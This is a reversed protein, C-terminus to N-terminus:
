TLVLSFEDNGAVPNPYFPLTLLMVGDSDDYGPAGFNTSPANFTVINGATTGHVFSAVGLDQNSVATFYDKTAISPAEISIEGEPKRDTLVVQKDCGALQRYVVEGNNSLTFSQLCGSYGHVNVSQTNDSNIALPRAQDGYVPGPSAADVPDNFIGMMEFELKPISGTEANISVTGRAGTVVHKISDAYFEMSISEFGTSIPAYTVSVGPDITEAFGCARMMGGWRPATGVVGSGALECTFNIAVMRSGVVKETNGFYPTILERDLLDIQLPEADLETLTLADAGGPLSNTGYVTEVKSLLLRNRTFLTM